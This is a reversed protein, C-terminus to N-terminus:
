RPAEALAPGERQHQGMAHQIRCLRESPAEDILDHGRVFEHRRRFLPDLRERRPRRTGVAHDLSKKEVAGVVTELALHFM